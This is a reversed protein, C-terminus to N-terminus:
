GRGACLSTSLARKIAGLYGSESERRSMAAISERRHSLMGTPRKQPRGEMEHGEDGGGEGLRGSVFREFM